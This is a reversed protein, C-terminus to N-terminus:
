CCPPWAWAQARERALEQTIILLVTILSAVALRNRRFRRWADTWLGIQEQEEWDQPPALLAATAM